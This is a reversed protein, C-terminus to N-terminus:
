CKGEERLIAALEQVAAKEFAGEIELWSGNAFGLRYRGPNKPVSFVPKQEVEVFRITEMRGAEHHRLWREVRSIELGENECFERLTRGSARYM